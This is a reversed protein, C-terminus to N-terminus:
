LTRFYMQTTPRLIKRLMHKAFYKGANQLDSSVCSPPKTINTFGLNVAFRNLTHPTFGNIHELPHIKSYEIRTEINYVNSCDPTELVLIGEVALLESLRRLLSKPDDLRELVEFLTVAHFPGLATVDEIEAFVKAFSGNDRKASSRDVRVAYFGYLSCMTLFDGYGCGFDLLRTAAGERASRTLKEIRLVHLTFSSAINFTHMSTKLPKEFAEIASQSMWKSFRRENWEPTLIYRHFAMDCDQCSVYSWQKGKLFPAPHEGWPDENIFQSVVGEDFRGSSLEKLNTNGCSICTIRESFTAIESWEM